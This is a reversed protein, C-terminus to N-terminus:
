TLREATVSVDPRGYQSARSATGPDPLTTVRPSRLADFGSRTSTRVKDASGAVKSGPALKGCRADNYAPATPPAVGDGVASGVAVAGWGVGAGVVLGAGDAPQVQMSTM